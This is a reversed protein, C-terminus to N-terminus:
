WHRKSCIQSSLQAKDQGLHTDCLCTEEFNAITSFKPWRSLSPNHVYEKSYQYNWQTAVIWIVNYFHSCRTWIRRKTTWIISKSRATTTSSLLTIHSHKVNSVLCIGQRLAVTRKKYYLTLTIWSERYANRPVLLYTSGLREYTEVITEFVLYYPTQNSYTTTFIEVVEQFSRKLSTQM